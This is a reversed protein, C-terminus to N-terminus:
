LMLFIDIVNALPTKITNRTKDNNNNLEFFWRMLWFILKTEGKLIINVVPAMPLVAMMLM